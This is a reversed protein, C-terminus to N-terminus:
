AAIVTPALLLCLIINVKSHFAIFFCNSSDVMRCREKVRYFELFIRLM